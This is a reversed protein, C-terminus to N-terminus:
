QPNKEVKIYPFLGSLHAAGGLSDCYGRGCAAYGACVRAHLICLFTHVRVCVLLVFPLM